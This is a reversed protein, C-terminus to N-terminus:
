DAPPREEFYYWDDKLKQCTRLGENKLKRESSGPLYIVGKPMLGGWLRFIIERNGKDRKDYLYYQINMSMPKLEKALDSLSQEFGEDIKLEQYYGTGNMAVISDDRDRYITAFTINEPMALFHEKVQEFLDENEWFKDIIEEQKNAEAAWKLEGEKNEQLKQRYIQSMIIGGIVIICVVTFIAAIKRYKM